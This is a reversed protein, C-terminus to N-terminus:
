LLLQLEKSIYAIWFFIIMFTPRFHKSSMSLLNKTLFHLEVNWAVKLKKRWLLEDDSPSRVSPTFGHLLGSM